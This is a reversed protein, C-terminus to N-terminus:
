PSGQLVMLRSSITVTHNQRMRYDIWRDYELICEDCFSLMKGFVYISSNQKTFFFDMGDLGGTGTEASEM